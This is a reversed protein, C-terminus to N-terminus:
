VGHARWSGDRVVLGVGFDDNWGLAYCVRVFCEAVIFRRGAICGRLETYELRLGVFKAFLYGVARNVASIGPYEVLAYVYLRHAADEWLTKEGFRLEFGDLRCGHTRYDGHTLSYNLLHVRAQIIAKRNSETEKGENTTPDANNPCVLAKYHGLHIRSPSTSTREDWTQFRSEFEKITITPPIDDLPSLQACHTILLEQIDTLENGM